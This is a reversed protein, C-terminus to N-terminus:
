RLFNNREKNCTAKAFSIGIVSGLSHFCLGAAYLWVRPERIGDWSPKLFYIMGMKAGDLVIARVFMIVM